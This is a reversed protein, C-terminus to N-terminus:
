SDQKGESGGKKEEEEDKRADAYTGATKVFGSAVYIWGGGIAAVYELDLGPNDAGMLLGILYGSILFLLKKFWGSDKLPIGIDKFYSASFVLFSGIFGAIAYDSYLNEIFM